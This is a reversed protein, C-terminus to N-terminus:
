TYHDCMCVGINVYCIKYSLVDYVYAIWLINVPMPAFWGCRAYMGPMGRGQITKRYAETCYAQVYKFLLM